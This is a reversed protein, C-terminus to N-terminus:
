MRTVALLTCPSRCRNLVYSYLSSEPIARRKAKQPPSASDHLSWSLAENLGYPEFVRNSLAHMFADLGDVQNIRVFQENM